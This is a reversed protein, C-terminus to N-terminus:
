QAWTAVANRLFQACGPVKRDYYATFRDDLVYLEAIGKQKAATLTKDTMALWRRHLECLAKGEESAPSHGADVANELRQRLEADLATWTEYQAATMGLLTKNAADVSQNGYRKRAEQGYAAENEAVVQEKLAAFKAEDKMPEKREERHITQEVSGIMSELRAKQAYLATLHQRLLALRDFSPADLCDRIRALEVGLARYTLIAQLRDVQAPGYYRYGSDAVRGPKLLDIEDYWRLTRTSVGSLKSLDHISYEM